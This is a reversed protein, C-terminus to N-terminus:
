WREENFFHEESRQIKEPHELNHCAKCIPILNAREEGTVPDRYWRRLALEPHQRVHNVHHVTSLKRKTGDPKVDYRTIVGKRRCIECEYHNDKLVENKLKIWEPHKYFRWLEDKEILEKIWEVTIKEAVTVGEVVFPRSM